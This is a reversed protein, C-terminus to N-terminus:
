KIERKYDWFLLDKDQANQMDVSTVGGEYSKVCYECGDLDMCSTYLTYQRDNNEKVRGVTGLLAFLQSKGDETKARKSFHAVRIFRSISSTDGPVTGYNKLNELHIPFEPANTLVGVPNQYVKLGDALPEVTISQTKDAFIFHMPTATIESSFNENTININKLATKATEVSECTALIYSILEFSALNNKGQKKQNYVALSPFNLGAAALGNNNMADFYLPTNKVTVAMGLLAFHHSLVEGNKFTLPHNEPTLVIKEGYGKEVDLTRGFFGEFKIATCM